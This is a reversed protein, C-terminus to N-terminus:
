YAQHVVLELKDSVQTVVERWPQHIYEVMYKVVLKHKIPLEQNDLSPIAATHQHLAV